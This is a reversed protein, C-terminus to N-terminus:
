FRGDKSCARYQICQDLAGALAYVAESQRRHYFTYSLYQKGAMARSVLFCDENGDGYDTLFSHRGCFGDNQVNKVM